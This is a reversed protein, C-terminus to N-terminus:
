VEGARQHMDFFVADVAGRVQRKRPLGALLDELLRAVDKPGPRDRRPWERVLVAGDLADGAVDSPAPTLVLGGENLQTRTSGVAQRLNVFAKGPPADPRIRFVIELVSGPGQGDIPGLMRALGVRLTGASADGNALFLDFDATLSARRVEVVELRQTDYAIALDAAELGDSRDVVLPMTITDGPRGQFSRPFRLVPDPGGFTLPPLGTPIPPIEPRDIGVSEQLIRTADTADVRDNVNIDALVRPDILPHAAFGSDLGVSVRLARVADTASLAGNGTADGLYAAVHLADDDRAAIAGNNIVIDGLDVLHKATYGATPPVEATLMVFDIAGAPLATPSHFTLVMRGPIGGPAPDLRATAGNPVGLGPDARVLTLLDPNYYLTLVVDQVGSGDSLALPLGAGIAPIRVPQGPGRAFDPLSVVVASSPLVTFSNTYPDGAVGDANGDLPRGDPTQFGGPVSRLTVTYDDAPLVGDFAVFTIAPFIPYTTLSGRIRGVNQGVLTVDAPGLGGNQTDYLNLVSVDFDQNFLLTFGTPTSTFTGPLVQLPLPENDILTLTAISPSGLFAGGPSSLTLLITENPDYRSDNLIPVTFSKPLLDGSAWSLTGSARGYDSGETATGDRTEYVVTVPGDGYGTRTVTISAPGGNENISSAAASFQLSGPLRNGFNRGSENQAGSLTVQHPAGNAPESQVWSSQPVERITYSGPKLGRFLYNGQSDTRTTTEEIAFNLSWNELVGANDSFDDYVLLEWVGNPDQGDFTSLPQEPIFRGTFPPTGDFISVTAEDDLITNIFNDGTGGVNDWLYLSDGHPGKLLLTLDLDNPHTINLNIDLDTVRGTVGSVLVYSRHVGFEPM